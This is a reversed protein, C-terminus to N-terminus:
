VQLYQLETSFKYLPNQKPKHVPETYHDNRHDQPLIDDKYLYSRM